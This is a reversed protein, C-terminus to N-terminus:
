GSGTNGIPCFDIVKSSQVCGLSKIMQPQRGNSNEKLLWSVAASLVRWNYIHIPARILSLKSTSRLRAQGSFLTGATPSLVTADRNGLGLVDVFSTSPMATESQELITVPVSSKNMNVIFATITTFRSTSMDCIKM